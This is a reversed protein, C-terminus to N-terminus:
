LRQHSIKTRLTQLRANQAAREGHQFAPSVVYPAAFVHQVPGLRITGNGNGGAVDVLLRQGRAGSHRRRPRAPASKIRESRSRTIVRSSTTAFSWSSTPPEPGEKTWDHFQLKEIDAIFSTDWVRKEPLAAGKGSFYGEEGRFRGTFQYPNNFVFDYNHYINFVSPANSYGIFRVTESGQGNFHQHWANLPM